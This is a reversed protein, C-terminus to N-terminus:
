GRLHEALHPFGRLGLPGREMRAAWIPYRLRVPVKQGLVVALGIAHVRHRPDQEIVLRRATAGLEDAALHREAHGPDLEAVLPLQPAARPPPDAPPALLVAPPPPPPPRPAPPPPPPPPQPAVQPPAM